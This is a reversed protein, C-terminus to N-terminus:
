TVCERDDTAEFVRLSRWGWGLRRMLIIGVVAFGGLGACCAVWPGGPVLLACVIGVLFSVGPVIVAGSLPSSGLYRSLILSGVIVITVDCAISAIAAGAYSLVPILVLATGINVITATLTIVLYARTRKIAIFIIGYLADFTKLVPLIAFLALLPGAPSFSKGFFLTTIQMALFYLVMFVALSWFLLFIFLTNIGRRLISQNKAAVRCLGPYAATIIAGTPLMVM